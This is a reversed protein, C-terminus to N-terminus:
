PKYCKRNSKPRRKRKNTKLKPKKVEFLPITFGITIGGLTTAAVDALEVYGGTAADYMEKAVGAAFATCIGTILARTKDEHKQYSTTYGVLGAINGAAFHLHKDKQEVFSQGDMATTLMFTIILLIKKM